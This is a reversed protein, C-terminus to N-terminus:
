KNKKIKKNKKVPEITERNYMFEETKQADTYTKNVLNDEKALHRGLQGLRLNIRDDIGKNIFNETVKFFNFSIFLNTLLISIGISYNINKCLLFLFVSSIFLFIIAEYNKDALYGIILIITLFIIFNTLNDNKYINKFNYSM